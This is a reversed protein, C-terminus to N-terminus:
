IQITNYCFRRVVFNKLIEFHKLIHFMQRMVCYFIALLHPHYKDVFQLFVDSVSAFHIM